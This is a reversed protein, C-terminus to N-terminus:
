TPGPSSFHSIMVIVGACSFPLIPLSPPLIWLFNASIKKCIKGCIIACINKEGCIQVFIQLFIQAFIQLGLNKQLYNRLFKCLNKKGLIKRLYKRFFKWLKKWVWFNKCIIECFNAWINKVWFNACIISCFHTKKPVIFKQFKPPFQRFNLVIIQTMLYQNNKPLLWLFIKM